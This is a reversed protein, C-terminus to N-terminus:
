NIELGWKGGCQKYVTGSHLAMELQFDTIKYPFMKEEIMSKLVDTTLGPTHTLIEFAHTIMERTAVALDNVQVTVGDGFVLVAGVYAEVVKAYAAQEALKKQNMYPSVYDANCIRSVFEDSYNPKKGQWYITVQWSLNDQPGVCNWKVRFENQIHRGQLLEMIYAKHNLILPATMVWTMWHALGQHYRDVTISVLKKPFHVRMEDWQGHAVCERYVGPENNKYINEWSDLIAMIAASSPAAEGLRKTKIKSNVANNISYYYEREKFIAASDPPHVRQTLFKLIDPGVHVVKDPAKVLKALSCKVAYLRMEFNDFMINVSSIKVADAEVPAPRYGLLVLYRESNMITSALPKIVTSHAFRTFIQARKDVDTVIDALQYDGVRQPPPGSRPSFLETHPVVYKIILSGGYQLKRLAVYMQTWFLDVPNPQTSIDYGDAIVLDYSHDDQMDQINSDWYAMDDTPSCINFWPPLSNCKVLISNTHDHMSQVYVVSGLNVMLRAMANPDSCVDLVRVSKCYDIVSKGFYPVMIRLITFLKIQPVTLPEAVAGLLVEYESQLLRIHRGYVDKIKKEASVTALASVAFSNKMEPVKEIKGENVFVISPHLQPNVFHDSNVVEVDIVKNKHVVVNTVLGINFNVWGAFLEVLLDYNQYGRMPTSFVQYGVDARYYQTSNDDVSSEARPVYKGAAVGAEYVLEAFGGLSDLGLVVLDLRSAALQIVDVVRSYHSPTLPTPCCIDGLRSGKPPGKSVHYGGAVALVPLRRVIDHIDDIDLPIDCLQKKHTSAIVYDLKSIVGDALLHSGVIHSYVMDYVRRPLYPFSDDVSKFRLVNKGEM